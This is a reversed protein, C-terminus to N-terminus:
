IFDKCSEILDWFVNLFLDRSEETPFALLCQHNYMKGSYIEGNHMSLTYKTQESNKWDPEWPKDLGMKDSAVKRFADRAILLNYCGWLEPGYLRTGNEMPTDLIDSDELNLVKCCEEFNKPWVPKKISNVFDMYENVTPGIKNYKDYERWEKEITERPTNNFYNILQEVFNM